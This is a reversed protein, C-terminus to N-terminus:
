SQLISNKHKEDYPILLQSNSLLETDDDITILVFGLCKQRYVSDTGIARYEYGIVCKEKTVSDYYRDGSIRAGVFDKAEFMNCILAVKNNSNMKFIIDVKKNEEDYIPLKIVSTIKHIFLKQRAVEDICTRQEKDEIPIYRDRLYKLKLHVRGSRHWCLHDIEKSMKKDDDLFTKESPIYLLDGKKPKIVMKGIIHREANFEIMISYSM